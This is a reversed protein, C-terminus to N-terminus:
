FYRRISNLQHTRKGNISNTIGQADLEDVRVKGSAHIILSKDLMIGVHSVRGKENHFFALDGRQIEEVASVKEGELAQQWADRPLKLGLVKFVTQAFGSCDVGMFTRGGWLYPAHLWAQTTRFFLDEDHPELNHRYSGHYQYNSNWLLGSAENLGTLFCGMPLNMIQQGFSLPNVIGTTIFYNDSNAVTGDIEVMHHTIWGEYQDHDTIVRFWEDKEELVKMTEGFLLQNSMEVRHSPETRMPAAAVTCIAQEM